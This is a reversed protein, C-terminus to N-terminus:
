ELFDVRNSCGRILQKFLLISCRNFDVRKCNNNSSADLKDYISSHRPSCLQKSHFRNSKYQRGVTVDVTDQIVVAQEQVKTTTNALTDAEISLQYQNERFVVDLLAGDIM